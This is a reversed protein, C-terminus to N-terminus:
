WILIWVPTETRFSNLQTTVDTAKVKLRQGQGKAHVKGQDKTIIGSFKM